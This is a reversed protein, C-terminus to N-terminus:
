YLRAIREFIMADFRKFDAPSICGNDCLRTLSAELRELRGKAEFTYLGISDTDYSRLRDRFATATGTLTEQITNM